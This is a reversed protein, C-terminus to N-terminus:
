AKYLKGRFCARGHHIAVPEPWIENGDRTLVVFGQQRDMMEPQNFPVSGYIGQGKVPEGLISLNGGECAFLRRDIGRRWVVALREGHGTVTSCLRTDIESHAMYGAKKRTTYSHHVFVDRDHNGGFLWKGAPYEGTWKIGLSDLSLMSAVSFTKRVDEIGMLQMLAPSQSMARALRWEHNGENFDIIKPKVRRKFQLMMEKATLTEEKASQGFKDLARALYHTSLHRWEVIDGNLVARDPKLDEGIQLMVEFALPDHCPIQWDGSVLATEM